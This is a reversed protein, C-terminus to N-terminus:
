LWGLRACFALAGFVGAALGLACSLAIPGMRALAAGYQQEDAGNQVTM